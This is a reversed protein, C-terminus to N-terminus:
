EGTPNPHDGRLAARFAAIRRDGVTSGFRDWSDTERDYRDPPVTQCPVRRLPDLPPNLEAVSRPRILDAVVAKNEGLIAREWREVVGRPGRIKLGKTTTELTVGRRKLDAIMRALFAAPRTSV